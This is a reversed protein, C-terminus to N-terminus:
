RHALKRVRKTRNPLVSNLTNNHIPTHEILVKVSTLISHHIRDSQLQSNRGQRDTEPYDQAILPLSVDFNTRMQSTSASSRALIAQDFAMRLDDGLYRPFSGPFMVFLLHNRGPQVQVAEQDVCM